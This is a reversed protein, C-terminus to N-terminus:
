PSCLEFYNKSPNFRMKGVDAMTACVESGTGAIQAAGNIDAKVDSTPNTTGVGLQGSVLAGNSPAATNTSYGIAAGGNVQLSSGPAVTGIGVNGAFYGSGTRDVSFKTTTVNSNLSGGTQANIFYQSGTGIATENRLINIDTSSQSGGTQNYTPSIYLGTDSSSGSSQSFTPTIGVAQYIAGTGSQTSNAIGVLNQTGTYWGHNSISFVISHNAISTAVVEGNYGMLQISGSTGDGGSNAISFVGGNNGTTSSLGGLVVGNSDTWTQVIGLTGQAVKGAVTLPAAPSTTGIGVNGGMFTAAYNNTGGSSANVQLGYTNTPSGGWAYSAVALITDSVRTSSGFVGNGAAAFDTVQVGSGTLTLSEGATFQIGRLVGTGAAQSTLGFYNGNYGIAMREYNSSSTYTSYFNLNQRNTGNRLALTNAADRFLM